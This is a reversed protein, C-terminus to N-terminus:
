LQKYSKVLKVSIEDHAEKVWAKTEGGLKSTGTKRPIHKPEFSMFGFLSVKNGEGCVKKVISPMIDLIAETDKKTVKTGNAELEEVILTVLEKKNVNEM